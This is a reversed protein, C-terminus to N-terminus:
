RTAPGGGHGGPVIAYFNLGVWHRHADKGCSKCAVQEPTEEKMSQSLETIVPEDHEKCIFRYIAM